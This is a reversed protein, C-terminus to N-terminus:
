QLTSDETNYLQTTRQSGSPWAALEGPKGGAEAPERSTSESSPPWIYKQFM